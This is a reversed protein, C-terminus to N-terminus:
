LFLICGPTLLFSDANSLLIYRFIERLVALLILNNGTSRVRILQTRVSNNVLNLHTM